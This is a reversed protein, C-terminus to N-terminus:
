AGNPTGESHKIAEARAKRIEEQRNDWDEYIMETVKSALAAAVELQEDDSFATPVPIERGVKKIPDAVKLTWMIGGGGIGCILQIQVDPNEAVIEGMKLTFTKEM